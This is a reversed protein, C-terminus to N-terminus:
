EGNQASDQDKATDNEGSAYAPNGAGNQAQQSAANGASGVSGDTVPANAAPQTAPTANKATKTNMGLASTARNTLQSAANNAQNEIGAVAGGVVDQALCPSSGLALAAIGLLASKNM